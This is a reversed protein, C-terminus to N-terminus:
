TSGGSEKETVRSRGYRPNVMEEGMILFGRESELGRVEVQRDGELLM